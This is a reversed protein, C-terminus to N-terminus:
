DKNEKKQMHIENYSDIDYLKLESVKEKFVNGLSVMEISHIYGDRGWLM